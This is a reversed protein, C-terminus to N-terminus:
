VTGDHQRSDTADPRAVTTGESQCTCSAITACVMTSVTGCHALVPHCTRQYANRATSKAARMLLQAVHIM